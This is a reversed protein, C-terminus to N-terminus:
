EYSLRFLRGDPYARERVYVYICAFERTFPKLFQCVGTEVNCTFLSCKTSERTTTAPLPLPTVAYENWSYMYACVHVFKRSDLERTGQKCAILTPRYNTHRTNTFPRRSAAVRARALFLPPPSPGPPPLSSPRFGRLFTADCEHTVLAHVYLCTHRCRISNIWGRGEGGGGRENM